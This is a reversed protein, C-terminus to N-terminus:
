IIGNSKLWNKKYEEFGLDGLSAKLYSNDDLAKEIKKKFANINDSVFTRPHPIKELMAKQTSKDVIDYGERWLEIFYIVLRIATV